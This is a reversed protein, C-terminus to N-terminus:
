AGVFDWYWDNEGKKKNERDTKVFKGRTFKHGDEQGKKFKKFPVGGATTTYLKKKKDGDMTFQIIAYPKEEEDMEIFNQLNVVIAKEELDEKKIQEGELQPQLEDANVIEENNM